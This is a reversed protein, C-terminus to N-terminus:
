VRDFEPENPVSIVAGIMLWGCTAIRDVSPTRLFGTTTSVLSPSEIAIRGTPTSACDNSWRATSPAYEAGDETGTALVVFRLVQNYLNLPKVIAFCVSPQTPAPPRM